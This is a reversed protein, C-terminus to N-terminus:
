DLVHVFLGSKLKPEFWTSKPPMVEGRDAVAMVQEIRVPYLAFAVAAAGSQVRRELEATGRSGGVFDIRKETRIDGIGLIPQLVREALLEADLSKIPDKSDISAPDLEVRYWRGGVYVGFVGPRDPAPEAAPTVRGVAGLRELFIEPTLGNLDKVVRNYPLITLQAAPFLVALFWNSEPDADKATARLEKGARWASACRHHGDAVYAAPIRRFADVYAAPHKVRWVLHRVGDPAVFDYLPAEAMEAANLRELYPQTEFTLFVPEANARLTLV